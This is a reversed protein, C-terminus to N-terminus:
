FAIGVLFVYRGYVDPAVTEGALRTVRPRASEYDAAEM